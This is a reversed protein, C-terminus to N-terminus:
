AAVEHDLHALVHQAVEDPKEEHVFLKAGAIARLGDCRALQAVMERARDIPFTPDDEGWVLLVRATVDRHRAALGDVLRWDIGQLYRIQGRLRDRSDLLPQVFLEHFEGDLRSPDAFAGGFGMASRRFARSALLRRFALTSGPLRSLYQFTRIWPPRHGPIETNILVMREIRAGLILALERAITAGTDHAVVDLKDLGLSDVFRAYAEAQGRFAFDHDAHVRTDGAGPTDPVICARYRALPAICHRWTFGSLPWGHVLLVPRGAGFRRYAIAATGVEAYEIRADRFVRGAETEV